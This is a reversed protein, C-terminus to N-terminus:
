NGYCQQITKNWFAEKKEHVYQILPHALSNRKLPIAESTDRVLLNSLM